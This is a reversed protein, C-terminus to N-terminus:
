KKKFFYMIILTEDGTKEGSSQCIFTLGYKSELYNVVEQISDLYLGEFSSTDGFPTDAGVEYKGGKEYINRRRYLIKTHEFILKKLWHMKNRYFSLETEDSNIQKLIWGKKGYYNLVNEIHGTHLNKRESKPDEVVYEGDILKLTIALNEIEM